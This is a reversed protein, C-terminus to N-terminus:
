ETYIVEAGCRLPAPIDVEIRILRTRFREVENLIIAPRNWSGDKNASGGRWEGGGEYVWSAGGDASTYAHLRMTNVPNALDVTSLGAAAITVSGTITAPLLVSSSLMTGQRVKTTLVRVTSM